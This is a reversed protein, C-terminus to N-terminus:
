TQDEDWLQMDCLRQYEKKCYLLDSFMVFPTVTSGTLMTATTPLRKKFLDQFKKVIGQRKEHTTLYGTSSEILQDLPVQTGFAPKFVGSSQTFGGASLVDFLWADLGKLSRIFQDTLEATRPARMVNSSSIDRHAMDWLFAALGGHDMEQFLFPFFDGRPHYKTTKNAELSARSITPIFYRREDESAPVAWDNNTILVVRCFSEAQFSNIGKPEFTMKKDTIIHKLPGESAPNGSWYSEELVVLLKNMLHMNFNGTLHDTKDIVIGNSGLAAVLREIIASKGLGKDGKFVLAVGPKEAPKQFLHAFWDLLYEYHAEVGSCLTYRLHWDLYSWSGKKPEIPWGSFINKYHGNRRTVNKSTGGMLPTPVYVLGNYTKRHRYSKWFQDLSTTSLAVNENDNGDTTIWAPQLNSCFLQFNGWTMFRYSEDGDIEDVKNGVRVESGSVLVVPHEEDLEKEMETHIEEVIYPLAEQYTMGALTLYVGLATMGQGTALPDNQHHSFVVDVGHPNQFVVVGPESQSDPKRWRQVKVLAGDATRQFSESCYEYDYRLLTKRVPIYKEVAAMFSWEGPDLRMADGGAPIRMSSEQAFDYLTACYAPNPVVGTHELAVFPADHDRLRPMQWLQTWVSSEKTLHLKLDYKDNIREVIFALVSALEVQSRTFIPFVIRYRQGKEPMLHSYTTYILHSLNEKVLADHVLDVDPAGNIIEHDEGYRSDADIVVVSGFSMNENKRRTNCPGIIFGRGDKQTRGDEPQKLLDFFQRYTYRVISTRPNRYSPCFAVQMQVDLDTLFYEPM